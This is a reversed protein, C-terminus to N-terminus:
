VKPCSIARRGRRAPRPILGRPHRRLPCHASGHLGRLCTHAGGLPLCRDPPLILCKGHHLPLMLFILPGDLLDAITPLTRTRGQYGPFVVELLLLPIVGGVRSIGLLVRLRHFLYLYTPVVSRDLRHHCRSMASALGLCGQSLSHLGSGGGLHLAAADGM